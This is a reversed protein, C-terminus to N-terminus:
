TYTTDTRTPFFKGNATFYNTASCEAIFESVTRSEFYPVSFLPAKMLREAKISINCLYNRLRQLKKAKIQIYRFNFLLFEIVRALSFFM